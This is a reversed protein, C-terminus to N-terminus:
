EAPREPHKIELKYEKSTLLAHHSKNSMVASSLWIGQLFVPKGTSLRCINGRGVYDNNLKFGKTDLWM